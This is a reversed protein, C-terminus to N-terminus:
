MGEVLALFLIQLLWVLACLVQLGVGIWGLIFGARGVGSKEGTGLVIGLVPGICPCWFSLGLLSFILSAVAKGTAEETPQKAQPMNPPTSVATRPASLTWTVPSPAIM